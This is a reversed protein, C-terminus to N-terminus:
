TRIKSFVPQFVYNQFRLGVINESVWKGVFDGGPLLILSKGNGGKLYHLDQSTIKCFNSEM